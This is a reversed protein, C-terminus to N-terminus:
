FPHKFLVVLNLAEWLHLIEAIKSQELSLKLSGTEGKFGPSGSHEAKKKENKEGNKNWLSCRHQSLTLVQKHQVKFM